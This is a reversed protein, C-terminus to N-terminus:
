GDPHQRNVFDPMGALDADLVQLGNLDNLWPAKQNNSFAFEPRVSGPHDLSNLTLSINTGRLDCYTLPTGCANCFGREVVNSSAFTTPPSSWAVNGAPFRVFAM